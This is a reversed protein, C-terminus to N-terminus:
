SGSSRERAYLDLVEKAGGLVVPGIFLGVGGFLVIGGFIGMAIVAVNIAGARNIVAPRLYVDSISVLVGFVLMAGAATPRDGALLYIAAPVWVGFSGVLPLLTLLFAAVTLFTVGPLGAILFGVGLTVAQSAAIVVNGVVSAWMLDDLEALLEEQVSRSVPVVAMTWALLRHGDRLLAFLIFATVSLGVIVSPLGRVLELGWGALRGLGTEISPRYTAYLQSGDVSYGFLDIPELLFGDLEGRRFAGLLGLGQQIAVVTVFLLPIFLVVVTLLILGVAAIDPRVYASLRRHAPTLVYALVVALLVYRLYTSVLLGAVLAGALAIVTLTRRERHRRSSSESVADRRGTARVHSASLPAASSKFGRRTIVDAVIM